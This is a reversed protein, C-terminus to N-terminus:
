QGRTLCPGHAMCAVPRSFPGRGVDEVSKKLAPLEPQCNECQHLSFM